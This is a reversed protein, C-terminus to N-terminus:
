ARARLAIKPVSKNLFPFSKSSELRIFDVDQSVARSRNQQSHVGGIDSNRPPRTVQDAARYEFLEVNQTPGARMMAMNLSARPEVDLHVAM